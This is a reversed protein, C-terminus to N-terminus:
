RPTRAFIPVTSCSAGRAQRCRQLGSLRAPQVRTRQVVRPVLRVRRRSPVLLHKQQSQGTSDPTPILTLLTCDSAGAHLLPRKCAICEERVDRSISSLLSARCQSGRGTAGVAEARAMNNIEGDSVREWDVRCRVLIGNLSRPEKIFVYYDAYLHKDPLEQFLASYYRKPPQSSSSSQLNILSTIIRQLHQSLDYPLPMTTSTSERQTCPSSTLHLFSLSLPVRRAVPSSDRLVTTAVQSRSGRRFHM